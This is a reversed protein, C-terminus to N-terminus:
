SRESFSYYTSVTRFRQASRFPVRILTEFRTNYPVWEGAPTPRVHVYFRSEERFWLALDIRELYMAILKNSSREVYLRVRRINQGDGEDPRARIEIVRAVMDWMLTDPLTRYVYAERNRASMYAPDDPVIHRALDTPDYADVTKSVFRSFYGYDFTGASDHDVLETKGAGHRLVREGFAILYDEEDFQETRTYRTYSKDTLRSFARTFTEQDITGLFAFISDRETVTQAQLNASAPYFPEGPV